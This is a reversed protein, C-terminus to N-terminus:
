QSLFTEDTTPNSTFDVGNIEMRENIVELRRRRRGKKALFYGIGVGVTLLVLFTFVVIILYVDTPINAIRNQMVYLKEELEDIKRKLVENDRSEVQYHAHTLCETRNIFEATYNRQRPAYVFDWLSVNAKTLDDIIVKLRDCMFINDRLHITKLNPCNKVLEQSDLDLLHNSHLGLDELSKLDRFIREPVSLFKNQSLELRTLHSLDKFIDEDLELLQNDKLNLERLKTNRNFTNKALKTINNFSLNLHDLNECGAFADEQIEQLGIKSAYIIRLNQFASCIEKTFVPITSSEFTLSVVNQPNQSVLHYESDKEALYVNVIYCDTSKQDLCNINRATLASKVSVLLLFLYISACKFM